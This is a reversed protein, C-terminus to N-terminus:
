VIIFSQFTLIKKRIFFLYNRQMMDFLWTLCEVASMKKLISLLKKKKLDNTRIKLIKLLETQCRNTLAFNFKSNFSERIKQQWFLKNLIMPFNFFVCRPLANPPIPSTPARDLSPAVRRSARIQHRATFNAFTANEWCYILTSHHSILL